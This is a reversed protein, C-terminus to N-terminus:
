WTELSGRNPFKQVLRKETKDQERPLWSAPTVNQIFSLINQAIFNQRHIREVTYSLYSLSRAFYYQTIYVGRINSTNSPSDNTADPLLISAEIILLRDQTFNTVPSVDDQSICCRRWHLVIYSNANPYNPAWSSLSAFHRFSIFCIESVFLQAFKASEKRFM